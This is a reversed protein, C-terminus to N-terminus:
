VGGRPRQSPWVLAPPFPTAEADARLVSPPLRRSPQAACADDAVRVLAEGEATDERIAGMDREAKRALAAERTVDTRARLVEQELRRLSHRLARTGEHVSQLSLPQLKKEM